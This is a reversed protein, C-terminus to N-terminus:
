LSDPGTSSKWSRCSISEVDKQGWLSFLTGQAQTLWIRHEVSPPLNKLLAESKIYKLQIPHSGQLTDARQIFSTLQGHAEQDLRALFSHRDIEVLQIGTFQAELQTRINAVTINNLPYREWYKSRDVVVDRASGGSPLLYWIGDWLFVTGNVQEMILELTRQFSRGSFSLEGVVTNGDILCSYQNESLDFLTELVRQTTVNQLHGDYQEGNRTIQLIERSNLVPSVTPTTERRSIHISEGEQELQYEEWPRLLTKVTEEV